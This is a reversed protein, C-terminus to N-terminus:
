RGSDFSAPVQEQAVEPITQNRTGSGRKNDDRLSIKIKMSHHTGDHYRCPSVLLGKQSAMLECSMGDNLLM